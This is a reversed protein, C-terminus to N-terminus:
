ANTTGEAGRVASDEDPNIALFDALRTIEFIERYHDTLGWARMDIGEARARALLGVILAIGTSNIYQTRSFDLILARADAAAADWARQLADEAGADIDGILDLVPVGDDWRLAVELERTAM